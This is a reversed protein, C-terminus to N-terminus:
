KLLRLSFPYRYPKGQYVTAAAIVIFILDILAIIPMLFIGIAVFILLFAIFAAISITIQFNIAEKGQENILPSKERAIMWVVLPGLVNGVMPIFYGALAALHCGMAWLREEKETM